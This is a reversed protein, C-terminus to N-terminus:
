INCQPHRSHLCKIFEDTEQLIKRTEQTVEEFSQQGSATGPYPSYTTSPRQPWTQFPSDSLPWSPTPPEVPIYEAPFRTPGSPIKDSFEIATGGPLWVKHIPRGTSREHLIVIIGIGFAILTLSSLISRSTRSDIRLKGTM